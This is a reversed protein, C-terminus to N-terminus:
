QKKIILPGLNDGTEKNHKVHSGDCYPFTESKWCRCMVLKGDKFQGLNEIEGCDVFDVVKAEAMKVKTNVRSAPVPAPAPSPYFIIGILLLGILTWLVMPDKALAIVADADM